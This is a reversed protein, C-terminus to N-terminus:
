RARTASFGIKLVRSGVRKVFKLRTFNGALGLYLYIM